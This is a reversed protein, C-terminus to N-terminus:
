QFTYDSWRMTHSGMYQIPEGISSDYFKVQAHDEMNSDPFQLLYGPFTRMKTIFDKVVVTLYAHIGFDFAFGVAYCLRATSCIGKRSIAYLAPNPHLQSVLTSAWTECRRLTMLDCIFVVSMSLLYAYQYQNFMRVWSIKSDFIGLLGLLGFVIGLGGMTSQLRNTHTNYGGSTLRLDGAFLLVMCIIGYLFTLCAITAAGFRLPVCFLCTGIDKQM